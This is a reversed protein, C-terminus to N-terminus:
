FDAKTRQNKIKFFKIEIKTNNLVNLFSFIENNM